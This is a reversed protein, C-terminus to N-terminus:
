ATSVEEVADSSKLQSSVDDIASNLQAIKDALDQVHCETCPRYPVSSVKSSFLIFASENLFKCNVSGLYLHNCGSINSLLRPHNYLLHEPKCVLQYLNCLM